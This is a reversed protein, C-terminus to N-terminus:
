LLSVRGTKLDYFAGVITLKKQRELDHMVPSRERILAVAHRVYNRAVTDVFVPNKSTRDGSFETADITNKFRALLMTLNGLHVNDIAGKIAGCSSHGMVMVVKAGSVATAFEMSGLMDDNVACGAVRANFAHGIGLDCLIEVPTRSDVCSLFVAAPHQGAATGRQEALWDRPTPTGAVFRANGKLILNIIQEPTSSQRMEATLVQAGAATASLGIAMAGAAATLGFLERRGYTCCAGSNDHTHGHDEAM